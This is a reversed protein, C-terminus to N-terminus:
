QALIADHHRTGSRQQTAHWRHARAVKHGRGERHSVLELDPIRGLKQHAHPVGVDTRALIHAHRAAETQVAVREVDKGRLRGRGNANLEKAVLDIPYSAHDGRRTLRYAVARIHAHKGTALDCERVLRDSPRLLRQPAKGLVGRPHGCVEGKDLM